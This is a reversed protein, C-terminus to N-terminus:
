QTHTPIDFGNFSFKLFFFVCFYKKGSLHMVMPQKYLRNCGVMDSGNSNYVTLEAMMTFKNKELREM